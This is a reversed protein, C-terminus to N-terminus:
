QILVQANHIYVSDRWDKRAGNSDYFALTQENLTLAVSDPSERAEQRPKFFLTALRGSESATSATGQIRSYGVAVYGALSDVKSFFITSEAPGLFDGPEVNTCLLIAPDFEVRFSIGFLDDIMYLKVDINFFSDSDVQQYVPDLKLLRVEPYLDIQVKTTEGAIVSATTEGSYIINNSADLAQLAFKWDEGAPVEITDSIAGNQLELYEDALTDGNSSVILRVDQILDLLCTEAFNLKLVLPSGPESPNTILSKRSCTSSIFLILSLSLVIKSAFLM